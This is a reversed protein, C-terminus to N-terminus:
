ISESIALSKQFEGTNIVTFMLILHYTQYCVGVAPELVNNVAKFLFYPSLIYM